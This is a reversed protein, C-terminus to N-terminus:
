ESNDSNPKHVADQTALQSGPALLRTSTLESCFAFESLSDMTSLNACRTCARILVIAMTCNPAGPCNTFGFLLQSTWHRLVSTAMPLVWFACPNKSNRPNKERENGTLIYWCQHFMCTGSGGWGFNCYRTSIGSICHPWYLALKRHGQGRLTSVTYFVRVTVCRMKDCKWHGWGQFTSLMCLISCSLCVLFPQKISPASNWATPRDDSLWAVMFGQCGNVFAFAHVCLCVWAYHAWVWAQSSKVPTSLLTKGVYTRTDHWTHDSWRECRFGDFNVPYDQEQAHVFICHMNLLFLVKALSEVISLLSWLVNLPICHFLSSSHFLHWSRSPQRQGQTNISGRKM